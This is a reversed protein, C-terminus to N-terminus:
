PFNKFKLRIKLVTLWNSNRESEQKFCNYFKSQLWWTLLHFIMPHFYINQSAWKASLLCVIISKCNNALYRILELILESTFSAAVNVVGLFLFSLYYVCHKSFRFRMLIIWYNFHKLICLTFHIILPYLFLLYKPTM